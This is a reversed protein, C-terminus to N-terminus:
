ISYHLRVATRTSGDFGPATIATLLNNSDYYFQIVRV